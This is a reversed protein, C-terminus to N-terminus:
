LSRGMMRGFPKLVHFIRELDRVDRKNHDLVEAIADRKGRLAATWYTPKIATKETTGILTEAVVGQRNSHLQLLRRAQYYLDTHYIEGYVPFEVKNVLARTRIFPIDFRTSYYGCVRDFKRMVRVLEETIRRDEIDAEIDAESIAGWLIEDDNEPKVCWTLMIGWNAKLHSAEIDLFGIKEVM